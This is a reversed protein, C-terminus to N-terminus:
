AFMEPRNDNFSGERHIYTGIQNAYRNFENVMSYFRTKSLRCEIIGHCRIIEDVATSPLYQYFLIKILEKEEAFLVGDVSQVHAEDVNLYYEPGEAEEDIDEHNKEDHVLPENTSQYASQGQSLNSARAYAEDNYNAQPLRQLKWSRRESLKNGNENM